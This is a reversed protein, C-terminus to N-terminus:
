SQKNSMWTSDLEDWIMYGAAMEIEVFGALERLHYCIPHQSAAIIINRMDRSHEGPLSFTKVCNMETKLTSVIAEILKDGNGRGFANMLFLGEPRLKNVALQFFEKSILHRPTGKESFADVVLAAYSGATEQELLRRGDGIVAPPGIYDFYAQGIEAVRADIEAVKVDMDPGLHRSLTGIGQGIMFVRGIGKVHQKLLHLMARPYELIIREPCNLDMAGQVAESAFRLVRFRGKEGYLEHTDNVTIEAYPSQVRLLINEM